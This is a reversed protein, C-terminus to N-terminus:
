FSYNRSQKEVGSNGLFRPYNNATFIDRRTSLAHFFLLSTLRGAVQLAVRHVDSLWTEGFRPRPFRTLSETDFFSSSSTRPPLILGEIIQMVYRLRTGPAIRIVPTALRLSSLRPSALRSSVLRTM